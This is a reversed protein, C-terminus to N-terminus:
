DTMDLASGSVHGVLGLSLCLTGDRRSISFKSNLYYHRSNKYLVTLHPHEITLFRDLKTIGDQLNQHAVFQHPLKGNLLLQIGHMLTDTDSIRNFLNLVRNLVKAFLDTASDSQEHIDALDSFLQVMSQEHIEILRQLNDIQTAQIKVASVFHDSGLKWVETAKLTNREVKKIVEKLSDLDEQSALGTIYSLFGRKQRDESDFNEIIDYV